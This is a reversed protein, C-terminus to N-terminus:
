VIKVGLMQAVNVAQESTIKVGRLEYLTDSVAIGNIECGSLDIGKLSTKFFDAHTFDTKAFVPTKLKLESLATDSFNCNELKVREWVNKNFGSYRMNCGSFVTDRIHCAHFNNGEAKCESIKCNRFFGDAFDCSVFM